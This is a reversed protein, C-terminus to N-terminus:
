RLLRQVPGDPDELASGMTLVSGCGRQLGRAPVSATEVLIGRLRVPM